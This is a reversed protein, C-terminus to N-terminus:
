HEVNRLQYLFHVLQNYLTSFIASSLLGFSIIAPPLAYELIISKLFNLSIQSLTPINKTSM